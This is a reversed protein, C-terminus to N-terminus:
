ERAGEKEVRADTWPRARKPTSELCGFTVGGVMLGVFVAIGALAQRGNGEWEAGALLVAVHTLVIIGTTVSFTTALAIAIIRVM